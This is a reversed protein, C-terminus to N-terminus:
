LWRALGEAREKVGEEDIRRVEPKRLSNVYLYLDLALPILSDLAEVYDFGFKELAGVVYTHVKARPMLEFIRIWEEGISVQQIAERVKPEDQNWLIYFLYELYVRGQQKFKLERAAKDKVIGWIKDKTEGQAEVGAKEILDEVFLYNYAALFLFSFVDGIINKPLPVNLEVVDGDDTTAKWYFRREAIKAPSVYTATRLRAKASTADAYGKIFKDVFSEDM